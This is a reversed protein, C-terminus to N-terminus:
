APWRNQLAPGPVILAVELGGAGGKDSLAALEVDLGGAGGEAIMMEIRHCAPTDGGVTRHAMDIRLASVSPKQRSALAASACSLIAGRRPLGMLAVSMFRQSMSMWASPAPRGGPLPVAAWPAGM